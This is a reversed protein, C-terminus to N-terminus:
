FYKKIGCRVKQNEFKSNVAGVDRDTNIVKESLKEGIAVNESLEKGIV